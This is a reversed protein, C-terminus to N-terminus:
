MGAKGDAYLLRTKEELTKVLERKIAGFMDQPLPDTRNQVKAFEQLGRAM